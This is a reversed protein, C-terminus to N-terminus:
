GGYVFEYLMRAGDALRPGPRSLEDSTLNLISESRIASINEWGQRALISETPTPGEGFYMGVTLIVDPDREIVQEESIEAWGEVDDFINRINLLDAVENMFTETGATWLGYELPSVEFYISEQGAGAALAKEQFEAFVAKMDATLASAEAERGMLAGISEIAFYTEEISQADSVFTVVGANELQTIQEETQGMKNMLLLEPELEIIQEINTEFGSQVSQIELAEPPYDCYEGRGVLKDGAGLAFIIEVDAATLAVVRTAPAPLWVERGTMDTLSIGEDSTGDQEDVVAPAPTPDPAPAEGGGGGCGALMACLLAFVAIIVARKSRFRSCSKVTMKRREQGFSSGFRLSFRGTLGSKRNRNKAGSM